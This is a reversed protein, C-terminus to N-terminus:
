KENHHPGEHGCTMQEIMTDIIIKYYASETQGLIDDIQQPNHTGLRELKETAARIQWMAMERWTAADRAAIAQQGLGVIVILAGLDAVGAAVYYSREFHARLLLGYTVVLM